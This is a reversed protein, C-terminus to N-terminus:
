AAIEQKPREAAVIVWLAWAAIAVVLMMEVWRYGSYWGTWARPASQVLGNTLWAAAFAVLGYRRLVWLLGYMFVTAVMAVALSSQSPVWTVGAILAVVADAVLVKRMLLRLLVMVVTVALTMQLRGLSNLLLNSVFRQPGNLSDFPVGLPPADAVRYILALLLMGCMMATM